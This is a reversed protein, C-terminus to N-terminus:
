ISYLSEAHHFGDKIMSTFSTYSTCAVKVSKLRSGFARRANITPKEKSCLGDSLQLDKCIRNIVIDDVEVKRCLYM